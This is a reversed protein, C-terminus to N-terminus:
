QEILSRKHDALRELREIKYHFAAEAIQEVLDEWDECIGSQLFRVVEMMCEFSHNQVKLRNGRTLNNLQERFRESQACLVSKKVKIGDEVLPRFSLIVEDNELHSPPLRLSVGVSGISGASTVSTNGAMGTEQPGSTAGGAMATTVMPDTNQGAVSQGAAVATGAIGYGGLGHFANWEMEEKTIRLHFEYAYFKSRRSTKQQIDAKIMFHIAERTESKNRLVYPHGNISVDIVDGPPSVLVVRCPIHDSETLFPPVEVQLQLRSPSTGTENSATVLPDPDPLRFMPSKFAHVTRPDTGFLEREEIVWSFEFEQGLITRSEDEPDSFPHTAGVLMSGYVSAVVPSKDRRGPM